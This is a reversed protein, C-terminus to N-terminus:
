TNYYVIICLLVNSFLEGRAISMNTEFVSSMCTQLRFTFRRVFIVCKQVSTLKMIQMIERMRMVAYDTTRSSRTVPSRSFCGM